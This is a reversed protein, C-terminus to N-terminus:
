YIYSRINHICALELLFNIASDSVSEASLAIGIMTMNMKNISVAKNKKIRHETTSTDTTNSNNTHHHHPPLHSCDSSADQHHVLLITNNLLLLLSISFVLLIVRRTSSCCYQQQENLHRMGIMIHHHAHMLLHM